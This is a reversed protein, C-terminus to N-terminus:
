LKLSDSFVIARFLIASASAGVILFFPFAGSIPNLLSPNPIGVRFAMFLIVLGGIVAGAGAFAAYSRVKFHRFLLWVPLGLLLEVLYAMPLGYVSSFLLCTLISWVSDHNIGVGPFACFVFPVIVPSALFGFIIRATNTGSPLMNHGHYAMQGILAALEVPLHLM